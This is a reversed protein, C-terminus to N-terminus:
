GAACQHRHDDQCRHPARRPNSPVVIWADASSIRVRAAAEVSADHARLWLDWGARRDSRSWGRSGGSSRSHGARSRRLRGLRATLVRRRRSSGLTSLGLAPRHRLALSRPAGALSHGCQRAVGRGGSRGSLRASLRRRPDKALVRRDQRRSGIAGLRCIGDKIQGAVYFWYATYGGVISWSAVVVVALAHRSERRPPAGKASRRRPGRPASRPPGSGLDLKPGATLKGDECRFVDLGHDIM